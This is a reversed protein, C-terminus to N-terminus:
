PKKICFDQSTILNVDMQNFPITIGRKDFTIKIQELLDFNLVWYNDTEVWVRVTFNISSAAHECVRIVPPPDQLALENSEVINTLIQKVVEIDQSYSVSIVLDLRRTKEASYNILKATSVQGNPIIIAKNDVTLLKTHLINIHKVTGTVGSVDVFDGVNFPKSFLLIFGGALNSLSDQIALGVALGAAGVIAILSTMEIGLMSLAIIILLIYLTIRLLSILFKHCIPDLKSKKMIAKVAKLFFKILIMGVFIILAAVLIRPGFKEFFTEAQKLFFEMNKLRGIRYFLKEAKMIM